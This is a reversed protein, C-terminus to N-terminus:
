TWAKVLAETLDQHYLEPSAICLGAVVTARTMCDKLSLGQSHAYLFGSFFADGAGNADVLALDDKIGSEVREGRRNKGLAGEKGRTVVVLQKGETLLHDQLGEFDLLQDASLFVYDAARVFDEHYPNTGDYDHLDCWIKKGHKRALPILTRAYNLINLVLYDCALIENELSILDLVPEFTPYTTYISIRGGERDMLNTHTETGRPDTQYLVRVPQRSLFARIKDGPEDSGVPTHLTVDFGLRALNLAKGAGTSGLTERYGQSFITQARASPLTDVSIIRDWSVGGIILVKKM